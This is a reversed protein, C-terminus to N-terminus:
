KLLHKGPFKRVERQVWTITTEVTSLKGVLHHLDMCLFVPEGPKPHLMELCTSQSLHYLMMIVVM